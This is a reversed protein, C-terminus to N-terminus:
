NIEATLKNAEEESIDTLKEIQNEQKKSSIHEKKLQYFALVVFALLLLVKVANRTILERMTFTDGTGTKSTEAYM